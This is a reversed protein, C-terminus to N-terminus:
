ARGGNRRLAWGREYAEAPHETAYRHCASCTAAWTETDLYDAGVRGRRHQIEVARGECVDPVRLECSPHFALYVIRAAEYERRERKRRSSEPNMRRARKLESKRLLPVRRLGDTM